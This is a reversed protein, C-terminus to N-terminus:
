MTSLGINPILIIGNEKWFKASKRHLKKAQFLM